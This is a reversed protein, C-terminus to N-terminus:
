SPGFDRALNRLEDDDLGWAQLQEAGAGPGAGARPQQQQPPEWDMSGTTVQAGGGSRPPVLGSPGGIGLGVTMHAGRMAADAAGFTQAGRPGRIGGFLAAGGGASGHGGGGGPPTRSPSVASEPAAWSGSLEEEVEVLPRLPPQWMHTAAGTESQSREIGTQMGALGSPASHRLMRQAMMPAGPGGYVQAFIPPTNSGHGM